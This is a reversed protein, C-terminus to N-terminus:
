FLTFENSIRNEDRPQSRYNMVDRAFSLFELGQVKQILRFNNRRTTGGTPSTVHFGKLIPITNM